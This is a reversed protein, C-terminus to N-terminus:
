LEVLLVVVVEVLMELEQQVEAVLQGVMVVV